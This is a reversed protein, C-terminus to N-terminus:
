EEAVHIKEELSIECSSARFYIRGHYFAFIDYARFGELNSSENQLFVSLILSYTEFGLKQLGGLRSSEAAM